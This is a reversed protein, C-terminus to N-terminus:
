IVTYGFIKCFHFYREWRDGFQNYQTLIEGNEWFVLQSRFSKYM